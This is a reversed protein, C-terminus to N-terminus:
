YGGLPCQSLWLTHIQNELTEILDVRKESDRMDYSIGKYTITGLLMGPTATNGDADFFGLLFGHLVKANDTKLTFYLPQEATPERNLMRIQCLLMLGIKKSHEHHYSQLDQVVYLPWQVTAAFFGSRSAQSNITVRTYRGDKAPVYQIKLDGLMACTHTPMGQEMRPAHKPAANAPPLAQMGMLLASMVWARNEDDVLLRQREIADNNEAGAENPTHQADLLQLMQNLLQTRRNMEVLLAHYIESAPAPVDDALQANQELADLAQQLPSKEPLQPEAEPFYRLITADNFKITEPAVGSKVHYEQWSLLAKRINAPNTWAYGLQSLLKLADATTADHPLLAGLTHPDEVRVSDSAPPPDSPM